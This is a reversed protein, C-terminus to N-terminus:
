VREHSTLITDWRRMLANMVNRLQCGAECPRPMECRWDDGGFVERESIWEYQQHVVMKIDSIAGQASRVRMGSELSNRQKEFSCDVIAIFSPEDLRAFDLPHSSAAPDNM